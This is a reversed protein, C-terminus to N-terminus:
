YLTTTIVIDGRVLRILASGDGSDLLKKFEEISKLPIFKRTKVTKAAIIVDGERFGHIQANSKKEVSTVVIGNNVSLRYKQTLSASNLSLKLGKLSQVDNLAVNQEERQSLTTSLNTFEGDRYIRIRIKTGNSQLSIYNRLDASNKIDKNDIKVIIDGSKLGARKAASNKSVEVVFAGSEVGYLKSYKTDIDKISVGLYGRIVHGSKILSITIHKAMNSPIAFGIGNNGGSKSIIASNIGVLFGRSDILAGGSNGPNIAADTQIFDEYDNIGVHNRGLASVIGQTVTTGIGFPNGIALVIDGVDVGDSNAFTIAPLNDGDIKIIAIDTKEDTGIIKAHYSKGNETNVLIKDAGLVVHNNTLIYGNASIIVGSGLSKSKREKPINKYQRMGFLENFFPDNFLQNLPNEQAVRINKETSINVVSPTANKVITAFSFLEKASNPITRRVKTSFDEKFNPLTNATLTIALIPMLLLSTKFM